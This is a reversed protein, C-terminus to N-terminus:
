KSTIGRVSDIIKLRFFFYSEMFGAARYWNMTLGKSKLGAMRSSLSQPAMPVTSLRYSIPHYGARAPWFRRYQGSLYIM